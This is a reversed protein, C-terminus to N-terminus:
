PHIRQQLGHLDIGHSPVHHGVAVAGVRGIERELLHHIPLGEHSVLEIVLRELRDVAPRRPQDHRVEIEPLAGLPDPAKPHDLTVLRAEPLREAVVDVAVGPLFLPVASVSRPASPARTAPRPPCGGGAGFGAPGSNSTPPPEPTTGSIAISRCRAAWCEVTGALIRYLLRVASSTM